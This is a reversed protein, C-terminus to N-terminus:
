RGEFIHCTYIYYLIAVIEDYSLKIAFHYDPINAMFQHFFNYSFLVVVVVIFISIQKKMKLGM